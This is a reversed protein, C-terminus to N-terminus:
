RFVEDLRWVLKQAENWGADTFIDLINLIDTLPQGQRLIDRHDALSSEVLTVVDQVAMQDLHYGAQIGTQVVTAAMRLVNAPDCELVGNLIGMFEHATSAIMVGGDKTTAFELVRELLPRIMKYLKMRDLTAATNVTQGKVKEDRYLVIYCKRVITNIILYCARMRSALQENVRTGLGANMDIIYSSAADIIELLLSIARNVIDKSIEDKHDDGPLITDLSIFALRDLPGAFAAPNELLTNVVSRAWDNAHYLLLGTVHPAVDNLYGASQAEAFRETKEDLSLMDVTLRSLADVSRELDNAMVNRLSHLLVELVIRNESAVLQKDVIQWFCDHSKFWLRWIETLVLLRVSPVRDDALDRIKELVEGDDPRITALWPLGAAAENRPAPSWSAFKFEKDHEPDYVPSDNVACYLLIERILACDSDDLSSAVRSIISSCSGLKTALSESLVSDIENSNKLDTFAQDVLPLIDKVSESDPKANFWTTTFGNLQKLYELWKKNDPTDLEVGQASLWNDETYEKATFEVRVPPRNTTEIDDDDIAARLLKAQSSIMVNKPIRALLKNRCSKLGDATYGDPVLSTIAMISEEIQKVQDACFFSAASEIFRGLDYQTDLGLQVPHAVCLDFLLDGFVNPSKCGVSLLRHWFFAMCLSDRFSDLISALKDLKTPDKALEDIYTFLHDAMEMPKHHYLAMDWIGSHDSLYTATGGRFMFVHREYGEFDDGVQDPRIYRREIYHGLCNILAKVADKPNSKLFGPFSEVLYFQCMEFEQRRTSTLALIRGGISVPEESTEIHRFVAIYLKETFETDYHYIHEINRTVASLLWFSFGNNSVRDIVHQLQDRSAKTDTNYTKAVLPLILNGGLSSVADDYGKGMETWFWSALSRIIKGCKLIIERNRSLMARDTVTTIYTAIDWVTERTVYEVALELFSVWLLDHQIDVMRCAQVLRLLAHPANADSEQLRIMIPDLQELNHIEHAIVSPPLLRTFLRIHVNDVLPLMYWWLEWFVKPHDHWLRTLYYKLSPHLFLTRSADEELFQVLLEPKDEILLVSVAYDFLINHAFVVRQGTTPEEVLVGSSMLLRWGDQPCLDYVEDKRVSLSYNQVMARTVKSLAVVKDESHPDNIVRQQWYLGLLQVESRISSFDPVNDGSLLKEALWLNFPIKFLRKFDDTGQNYYNQLNPVTRIAEMVEDDTLEPIAFHRCKIAQVQYIDHPQKITRAPFINQLDQSKNADYMRVSVLVNWKEPLERHIRTIITRLTNQASDSRAADYADILIVGNIDGNSASQGRLFEILDQHIGFETEFSHTDNFSLRDIPIYLCLRGSEQVYPVLKLFSHTKGTGPAGVVIGSEALAFETLAQMLNRRQINM